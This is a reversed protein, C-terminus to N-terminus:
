PGMEVEAKTITGGAEAKDLANSAQKELVRAYKAAWGRGLDALGDGFLFVSTIFLTGLLATILFLLNTWIKARLTNLM